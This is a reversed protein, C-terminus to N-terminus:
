DFRRHLQRFPANAKTKRRVTIQYVGNSIERLSAQEYVIGNKSIVITNNYNDPLLYAGVIGHENTKGIEKYINGKFLVDADPIPTGDPKRVFALLALRDVERFCGIINRMIGEFRPFVALGYREASLFLPKKTTNSSLENLTTLGEFNAKVSHLLKTGGYPQPQWLDQSEHIARLTSDFPNLTVIGEDEARLRGVLM